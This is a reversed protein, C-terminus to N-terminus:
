VAADSSSSSCSCSAVIIIPGDCGVGPQPVIATDSALVSARLDFMASVDTNRVALQMEM